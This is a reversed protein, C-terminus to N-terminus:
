GSKDGSLEMEVRTTFGGDDMRHEVTKVLWGEGDIQPKFGKVAVPSQPTLEPRGLALELELTAKGRTIRQLEARAAHLADDESAYTERLTKVADDEKGAIVEKRRGGKKDNWMARVGSYAGRESRSWRHQDGDQRTITIRELEKGQANRSGIIPMFLLHKKKVTAVADYRRALRTIFHMDSENTQDIHEVQTAALTAEVKHTLKNRTALEALIAGVTTNHWSKEARKRIEGGLDAARARITIVDPAGSHEAEDVVYTGKDVLAAGAWGLHLAIEAETEPIQLLGDHDSLVIDLQDAQNDRGESLTLSILRADVKPTIDRGDVTLRYTPAPHTYTQPEQM